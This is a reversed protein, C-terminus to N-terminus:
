GREMPQTLGTPQENRVIWIWKQLHLSLHNPVAPPDVEYVRRQAQFHSPIFPFPIIGMTPMPYIFIRAQQSPFATPCTYM